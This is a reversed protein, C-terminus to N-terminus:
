HSSQKMSPSPALFKDSHQLEACIEVFRPVRAIELRLHKSHRAHKSGCLLPNRKLALPLAQQIFNADLLEMCGIAFSAASDKRFPRFFFTMASILFERLDNTPMFENVNGANYVQQSIPLQLM